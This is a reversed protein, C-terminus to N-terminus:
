YKDSIPPKSMYKAQHTHGLTNERGKEQGIQDDNPCMSDMPKSM